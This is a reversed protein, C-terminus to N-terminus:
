LKQFLHTQVAGVRQAKTRHLMAFKVQESPAELYLYGNPKLAASIAAVDLLQGFQAYPPDCIILDFPAQAQSLAQAATQRLARAESIGIRAINAQLAACVAANSEVLLVEAAGRSAAELGLVGSGAFLDLCRWGSLDQGLWNFLTERVRAPTPRMGEAAVLRLVSRRYKGAQIIVQNNNAM